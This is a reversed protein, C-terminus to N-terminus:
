SAPITTFVGGTFRLGVVSFNSLTPSTITVVGVSDAPVQMVEDLFKALSRRAPVAITASLNVGPAAYTVLYGQNSDTNNAIALGLRAGERHDAIFRSKVSEGASFVTTEGVKAGAPNYFTYLVNAFVNMNCSLTGYGGQYDQVGSTQIATSGGAPVSIALSSTTGGGPFATTM